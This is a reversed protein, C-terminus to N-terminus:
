MAGFLFFFVLELNFTAYISINSMRQLKYKKSNRSKIKWNFREFARFVVDVIFQCLPTALQSTVEPFMPPGFWFRKGRGERRGAGEQAPVCIAAAPSSSCLHLSLYPPAAHLFPLRRCRSRKVKKHSTREDHPCPAVTICELLAATCFGGAALLRAPPQHESGPVLGVAPRAM